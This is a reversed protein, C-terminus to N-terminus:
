RAFYLRDCSAYLSTFHMVRFYVHKRMRSRRAAAADAGCLDHREHPNIVRWFTKPRIALQGGEVYGCFHVQAKTLDCSKGKLGYPSGMRFLLHSQSESKSAWMQRRSFDLRSSDSRDQVTRKPSQETGLHRFERNGIQFRTCIKGSEEKDFVGVFGLIAM